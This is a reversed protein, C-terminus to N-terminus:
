VHPSFAKGNQFIFLLHLLHYPFLTGDKVLMDVLVLICRTWSVSVTSSSTLRSLTEQNQIPQLYLAFAVSYERQSELCQPPTHRAALHLFVLLGQSGCRSIDTSRGSPRYLHCQTLASINALLSEQCCSLQSMQTFYNEDRNDSM